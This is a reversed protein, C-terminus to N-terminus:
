HAILVEVASSDVTLHGHLRNFIFSKVATFFMGGCVQYVPSVHGRLSVLFRCVVSTITQAAKKEKKLM